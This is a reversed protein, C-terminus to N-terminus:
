VATRYYTSIRTSENYYALTAICNVPSIISVHTAWEPLVYGTPSLESATGDTTDVPVTATIGSGGFKAYVNATSNIVLVNYATPLTEREAVGAVLVRANIYQSAPRVQDAIVTKPM